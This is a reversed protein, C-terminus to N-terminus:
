VKHLPPPKHRSDQFEESNVFNQALMPIMIILLGLALPWLLQHFKVAGSGGQRECLWYLAGIWLAGTIFTADRVPQFFTGNFNVNLVAFGLMFTQILFTTAAVLALVTLVTRLLFLALKKPANRFSRKQIYCHYIFAGTMMLCAMVIEPWFLGADISLGNLFSLVTVAFLTAMATKFVSDALTGNQGGSNKLQRCLWIHPTFFIAAGLSLCLINLLPPSAFSEPSM